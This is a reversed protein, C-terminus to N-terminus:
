SVEPKTVLTAAVIPGPVQSANIHAAEIQPLGPM